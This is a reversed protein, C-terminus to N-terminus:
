TRLHWTTLTGYVQQRLTGTLTTLCTGTWCVRMTHSVIRLCTGYVTVRMVVWTTRVWTGYVTVRWAEPAKMAAASALAQFVLPKTFASVPSLAMVSAAAVAAPEVEVAM